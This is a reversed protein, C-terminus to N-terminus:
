QDARFPEVIGVEPLCHQGFQGRRGPHQHDVLRVADGVPAVVEPRVVPAEARQQGGQGGPHRDQGGRGRGVVAHDAVDGILEVEALAVRQHEAALQVPLAQVQAHQV